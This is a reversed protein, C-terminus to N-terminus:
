VFASDDIWPWRLPFLRGEVCWGNATLAFDTALGRFRVFRPAGRFALDSQSGGWQDFFDIAAIAIIL